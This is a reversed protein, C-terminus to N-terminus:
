LGLTKSDQVDLSSQAHFSKRFAMGVMGVAGFQGPVGKLLTRMGTFNVFGYTALKGVHEQAWGCMHDRCSSLAFTV